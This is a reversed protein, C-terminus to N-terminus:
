MVCQPAQAHFRGFTKYLRTTVPSLSNCYLTMAHCTKAWILSLNCLKCYAIPGEYSSVWEDVCNEHEGANLLAFQFKGTSDCHGCYGCEKDCATLDKFKDDDGYTDSYCYGRRDGYCYDDGYSSDDGGSYDERICDMQDLHLLPGIPSSPLAAMLMEALDETPDKYTGYRRHQWGVHWNATTGGDKLKLPMVLPSFLDSHDGVFKISFLDGDKRQDFDWVARNILGLRWEDVLHLLAIHLAEYAEQIENTFTKSSLLSLKKFREGGM